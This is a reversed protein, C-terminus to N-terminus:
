LKCDSSPYHSIIVMQLALELEEAEKVAVDMHVGSEQDGDSDGIIHGYIVPQGTATM